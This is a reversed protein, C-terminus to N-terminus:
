YSGRVTGKVKFGSHILNKKVTGVIFFFFLYYFLTGLPLNKEYNKNIKMNRQQKNAVQM